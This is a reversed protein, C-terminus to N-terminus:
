YSKTADKCRFKQWVEGVGAAAGNSLLQWRRYTGAPINNGAGTCAKQLVAPPACDFVLYSETSGQEAALMTELCEMNPEIFNMSDGSFTPRATSNTLANYVDTSVVGVKLVYKYYSPVIPGGGVPVDEELFHMMYTCGICQNCPDTAAGPPTYPPLPQGKPVPAAHSSTNSGFGVVLSLILLSCFLALSNIVRRTPPVGTTSV